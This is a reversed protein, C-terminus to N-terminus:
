SKLRNEEVSPTARKGTTRKVESVETAAVVPRGTDTAVSCGVLRRTLTGWDGETWPAAADEAAVTERVVTVGSM